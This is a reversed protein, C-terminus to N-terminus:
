RWSASVLLVAYVPFYVAALKRAARATLLIIEGTKEQQQLLSIKTILVTNTAEQLLGMLPIQLTGFSYVAFMAPTFRNSIFYNHLDSQFTLLTAAAGLPIAYSVQRRLMSWNFSHWFGPFRSELYWILVLSQVSGFIIAACILSRVTAFIIAAGALLLARAAQMAIILVTASRIEENAVPATDLFQGVIWLLLTLGILPSYQAVDAKYFIATLISPYLWVVACGLLGISTLVLLINLVAERRNEPERPLFYFASMSFALPLVVVATNVILFVQKYVGVQDPDMRRAVLLPLAISFVFGITKALTLWSARSTLSETKTPAPNM